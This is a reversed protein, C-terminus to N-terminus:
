LASMWEEVIRLYKSGGRIYTDNHGAVVPVIRKPGSARLYLEEAHHFPILEDETGHIILKPASIKSVILGNDFGDTVFAAPLFPYIESAMRRMSVFGSELIVGSVAPYREAAILAAGVGLSRGWLVIRNLPVKRKKSMWDVAAVADEGIAEITPWGESRGYGRYDIMLFNLGSPKMFKIFDIRDSMNGANGHYFIVFRKSRSGPFFWGHIDFEGSRIVVDVYKVGFFSPNLELGTQPHFLFRPEAIKVVARLSVVALILLLAFFLLGKNPM